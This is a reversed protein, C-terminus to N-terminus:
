YNTTTVRRNCNKNNWYWWHWLVCFLPLVFFCIEAFAFNNEAFPCKKKCTIFHNDNSSFLQYILLVDVCLTIYMFYCGCCTLVIEFFDIYIAYYSPVQINHTKIKKRCFWMKKRCISDNKCIKQLFIFTINYVFRPRVSLFVM